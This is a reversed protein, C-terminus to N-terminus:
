FLLVSINKYTTLLQISIAISVNIFILFFMRLFSFVEIHIEGPFDNFASIGKCDRM